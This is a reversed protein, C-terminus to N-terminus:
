TFMDTSGTCEHGGYGGVKAIVKHRSGFGLQRDMSKRLAFWSHRRFVDQHLHLSLLDDDRSGGTVFWLPKVHHIGFHM